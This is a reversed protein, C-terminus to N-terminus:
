KPNLRVMLEQLQQRNWGLEFRVIARVAQIQQQRHRNENFYNGLSSLLFGLITGLVVVSVENMDREAAGWYVQYFLPIHACRISVDDAVALRFTL